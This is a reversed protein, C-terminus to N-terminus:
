PIKKYFYIDGKGEQSTGDYVRNDFGGIAFGARLYFRCAGLNNDQGITYIGIYGKEKAVQEAKEMLLKGIGQQRHSRNVKLDYLYMYKFFGEQMIALGVCTQGEYAGIFTTNAIMEDYVYPEDPFTMTSAEPFEETTCSWQGHICQPIMRGFLSFPENPLRIDAEHAKDIIHIEM